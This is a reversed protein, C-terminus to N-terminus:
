GLRYDHPVEFSSLMCVWVVIYVNVSAFVRIHRNDETDTSCSGVHAPPIGKYAIVTKIHFSFMIDLLTKVQICM